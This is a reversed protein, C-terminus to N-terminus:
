SGGCRASASRGAAFTSSCAEPVGIGPNAAVRIPIEHDPSHAAFFARLTGRRARASLAVRDRSSLRTPALSIRQGRAASSRIERRERIAGDGDGLRLAHGGLGGGFVDRSRLGLDGRRAQGRLNEVREVLDHDREVLIARHEVGVAADLLEEPTWGSDSTPTAARSSKWPMSARQSRPAEESDRSNL